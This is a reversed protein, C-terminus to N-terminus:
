LHRLLHQLSSRCEISSSSVAPSMLLHQTLATTSRRVCDLSAIQPKRCSCAGTHRHTVMMTHSSNSHPVAATAMHLPFCSSDHQLMLRGVVEEPRRFPPRVGQKVAAAGSQGQASQQVNQQSQQQQKQQDPQQHRCVFSWLSLAMLFHVWFETIPCWGAQELYMHKWMSRHHGTSCRQACLSLVPACQLVPSSM